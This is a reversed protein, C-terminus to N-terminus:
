LGYTYLSVVALVIGLVLIAVAIPILFPLGFAVGVLLLTLGSVQACMKAKGWANASQMKGEHRYVYGGLAILLELLVIVAGFWASLHASVLILVVLSILLKDAVPDYFTGWRTIHKRVRALSGDIADTFASVVFLPLGVLYNGHWLFWAVFPLSLFRLITVHNPTVFRPIFPLIIRRMWRDHPYLKSPDRPM